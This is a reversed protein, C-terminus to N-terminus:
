TLFLIPVHDPAAKFHAPPSAQFQAAAFFQAACRFEASQRFLHSRSCVSGRLNKSMKLPQGLPHAFWLSFRRLPAFWLSVPPPPAVRYLRDRPKLRPSYTSPRFPGSGCCAGNGAKM